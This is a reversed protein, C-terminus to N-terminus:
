VRVIPFVRDALYRTSIATLATDFRESAVPPPTAPRLPDIPNRAEAECMWCRAEPNAGVQGDSVLHSVPCKWSAWAPDWRWGAAVARDIVDRPLASNAM